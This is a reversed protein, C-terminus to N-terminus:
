ASARVSRSPRGVMTGGISMAILILFGGRGDFSPPPEIWHPKSAAAYVADRRRRIPTRGEGEAFALADVGGTVATQM